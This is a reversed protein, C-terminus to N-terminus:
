EKKEDVNTIETRTPEGNEVQAETKAPRPERRKKGGGGGMMMKLLISFPADIFVTAVFGVIYSWALLAFFDVMTSSFTFFIPARKMGSYIFMFAYHYLFMAYSIRAPLKWVPLCLFWNLPGAYGHVCAFILWGLATSWILRAFSNYMNDGLQNDWDLQLINYSMIFVTAFMFGALIWLLTALVGPLKVKKGKTINLLYGYAMGILFPSARTLTNQYFVAMYRDQEDNRILSANTSPLNKFFNFITAATTIGIISACLVSWVLKRRNTLVWVLILPSIIHLQMDIALYWSHPICIERPNVYNQVYLLTTWWWRRCNDTNIAVGGWQPGDTIRHYFSGELLVLAGLLPFLRFIRNLYFFHLGKILQMPKIKGVTTYVLLIGTMTFFTDVAFIGSSIWTSDSSTLFDVADLVNAYSSYMSFTHGIIVWMMSVSRIGDLCELANATKGFTVLRKTNTYLSFMRNTPNIKKPDLKLTFTCHLDYSTSIVTILALLLFVITALTDFVVWQKDNPLRCIETTYKLGVMSVNTLMYTIWEHPTCTKPLCIGFKLEMNLLGEIVLDEETNRMLRDTDIGRSKLRQTILDRVNVLKMQGNTFQFPVTLNQSLPIRVTCYKGEIAPSRSTAKIGLCQDYNGLDVLNGMLLSRPIRIGADLFELLSIQNQWVLHRIETECLEPNLVSQLLKQDFPGTPIEDITSAQCKVGFVFCTLLLFVKTLAM